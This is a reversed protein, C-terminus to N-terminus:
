EAEELPAESVIVKWSYSRSNEWPDGDESLTLDIVHIGTELGDTVLRIAMGRDYEKSVITPWAYTGNAGQHSDGWDSLNDFNSESSNLSIETGDFLTLTASVQVAESNLNDRIGFLLWIEGDLREEGEDLIFEIQGSGDLADDTLRLEEGDIVMVTWAAAVEPEGIDAFPPNALLFSLALWTFVHLFSAKFWTGKGYHEVVEDSMAMRHLSPLLFILAIPLFWLLDKNGTSDMNPMVLYRMMLSVVISFAIVLWMSYMDAREKSVHKVPDFAEIGHDRGSRGKKDGDKRKRSGRDARAASMATQMDVM